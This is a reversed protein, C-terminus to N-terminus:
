DPIPGLLNRVTGPSAAVESRMTRSLHAQDAFGLQAALGALDRQGAQLQELAAIVRLRTRFQTLTHGTEARFVRSLHPRSVGLQRALGEFSVWAPDATLLERAAEALRRHEPRSSSRVVGGPGDPRGFLGILLETVAESLGFDDLGRRAHALMVRHALDLKGTTSLTGPAPRESMVEAAFAEDFSLATCIDERGPRHAIQQEDGPFGVYATLPDVVGAWGPLKLGFVGRRVFVVRHVLGVEPESWGPADEVIQWDELIFGSGSALRTATRTV